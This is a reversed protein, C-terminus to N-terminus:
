RHRPKRAKRAAIEEDTVGARAEEAQDLGGGLGAEMPGVVNDIGYDESIEEDPENGRVLWEALEGADSTEDAEDDAELEYDTDLEDVPESPESEPRRRKAM